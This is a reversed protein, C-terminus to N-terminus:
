RALRPKYIDHCSKCVTTAERATAAAAEFDAKGISARAEAILKGGKRSIEVADETGPKRRFYDETYRFGGALVEADELAADANQATIDPEFFKVTRELDRMLDDDYDRYDSLPTATAASALLSMGFAWAM